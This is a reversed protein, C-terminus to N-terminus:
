LHSTQSSTKSLFKGVTVDTPFPQAQIQLWTQRVEFGPGKWSHWAAARGPTNHRRGWSRGGLREARKVAWQRVEAQHHQSPIVQDPATGLGVACECLGRLLPQAADGAPSSFLACTLPALGGAGGDLCWARVLPLYTLIGSSFRKSFVFM